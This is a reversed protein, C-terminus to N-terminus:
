LGHHVTKFPTFHSRCRSEEKEEMVRRWKEPVGWGLGGGEGSFSETHNCAETRQQRWVKGATQVHHTWHTWGLKLPVVGGREGRRCLCSNALRVHSSPPLHHQHLLLNGRTRRKEIVKKVKNEGRREEPKARQSTTTDNKSGARSWVNM